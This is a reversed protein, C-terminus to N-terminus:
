AWHVIFRENCTYESEYEQGQANTSKTRFTLCGNSVEAHLEDCPWDEYDGSHLKLAVPSSGVTGSLSYKPEGM